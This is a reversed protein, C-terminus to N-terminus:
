VRVLAASADDSKKFRPFELTGSDNEEAQRIEHYVSQLGQNSCVDFFRSVSGLAFTDVWRSFGDSCLLFEFGTQDFFPRDELLFVCEPDLGVAIYGEAKNALARNKRIEPMVLRRALEPSCGKKLHEVYSGVMRDDLENLASPPFANYVKGDAAKVYAECDAARYLNLGSDERVLAIMAAFPMEYPEFPGLHATIQEFKAKLIKLTLSLSFKFDKKYEWAAPLIAAIENVLWNAPSPYGPVQKDSLGTAGDLIVVLDPATIVIDENLGNDRGSCCLSEKLQISLNINSHMIIPLTKVRSIAVYAKIEGNAVYYNILM